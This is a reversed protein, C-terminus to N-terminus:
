VRLSGGRVNLMTKSVSEYSANRLSHLGAFIDVETEDWHGEPTGECSSNDPLKCHEPERVHKRVCMEEERFVFISFRKPESVTIENELVLRSTAWALIFNRNVVLKKSLWSGCVRALNNEKDAGSILVM